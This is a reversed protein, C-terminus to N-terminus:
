NKVFKHGVEGKVRDMSPPPPPKRGGEPVNQEIVNKRFCIMGQLKALKLQYANYKHASIKSIMGIVSRSINIM